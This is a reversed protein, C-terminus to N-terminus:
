KQCILFRKRGTLDKVVESNSFYNKAFDALKEVNTEHAELYLYQCPNTGAQYIIAKALHTGDYGSFLAEPPEYNVVEDAIKSGLPIYPPNSIIAKARCIINAILKNEIKVLKDSLKYQYFQLNNLSLLKKNQKALNIALKSSDIGFIKINQQFIESSSLENALALAIAGTGCCLDVIVFDDQVPLDQDLNIIAKVKDMFMATLYETEPRPIFVGSKVKINNGLFWAEQLIYQLPKGLFRKQVIKNIKTQQKLSIQSIIRPDLTKSYDLKLVHALILKQEHKPLKCISNM